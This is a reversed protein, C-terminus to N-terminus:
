SKPPPEATAHLMTSMFGALETVEPETLSAVPEKSMKSRVSEMSAVLQKVLTTDRTKEPMANLRDILHGVVAPQVLLASAAQDYRQAILGSALQMQRVWSGLSMFVVLDHDKQELMSLRIDNHAADLEERLTSWRSEDAFNNISQVRPLVNQSVNLKKSLNFIDRSTNKVSQGDHAEIAIFGDAMLVGLQLALHERRSTNVPVSAKVLQTWNPQCRKDLATFFEGPTPLYITEVFVASRMQEPTLSEMRAHSTPVAIVFLLVLPLFSISIRFPM